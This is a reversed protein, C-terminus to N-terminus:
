KAPGIVYLRGDGATLVIEGFGDGDVDAVLLHSVSGPLRLAWKEKGTAGDLAVLRSAADGFIFEVTGDGDIDAAIVDSCGGAPIEVDWRVAGTKGDYCKFRGDLHGAGIELIGDGEVDAVAQLGRFGSVNPLPHHWLAKGELTMAAVAGAAYSADNLYVELRGDGNLDALTLWAYASWCPFVGFATQLPPQLEQGTAGSFLVYTYPAAMMALEDLGDGNVDALAPFFSGFPGEYKAEKYTWNVQRRRWLVQGTAGDLALGESSGPGVRHLSVYIDKHGAKRFQGAAWYDVGSGIDGAWVETFTHEWQRTGDARLVALVARGDAAIRSCVIEPEGDGDLDNAEPSLSPLMYGPQATMGFGPVRWLLRPGDGDRPGSFAALTGDSTPVVIECRGDHNLDVAIPASSFGGPPNDKETRALEGRGNLVFLDGTRLDRLRIETGAPTAAVAEVNLNVGPRRFTWKRIARGRRHVGFAKLASGDGAIALFESRGDGDIDYALVTRESGQAISAVTDPFVAPALAVRTRTARLLDTLKGNRLRGVRLTPSPPATQGPSEYLFVEPVGDGDIDRLGALIVGPLNYKEEGTWADYVVLHWRGDVAEDYLNIAIEVRGDGDVDGVSNYQPRLLQRRPQGVTADLRFKQWRLQGGDRRTDICDIHGPLDSVVFLKPCPDDGIKAAAFLGYNRGGGGIDWKVEYKMAGTQGNLVLLRYHPALAVELEGDADVDAVIVEPSYMDGLPPTQWVLEGRAVGKDFAFLYGRGYGNEMWASFCAIQLGQRDRLLRAVKMRSAAFGPEEFEHRFLVAGNRDTVVLARDELQVRELKGDGDLDYLFAAASEPTSATRAAPAGLYASWLIAPQTIRAKLSTAGTRPGDHRYVPWDTAALAATAIAILGATLIAIRM